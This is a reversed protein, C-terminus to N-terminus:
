GVPSSGKRMPGRALIGAKASPWDSVLEAINLEAGERHFV